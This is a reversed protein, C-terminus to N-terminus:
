KMPLVQAYVNVKEVKLNTGDMFDIIDSIKYHRHGFFFAPDLFSFFTSNPTSLYLVGNVKLLKDM